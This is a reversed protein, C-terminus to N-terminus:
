VCVFCVYVSCVVDCMVVCYRVCVAAVCRVAFLLCRFVCLCVFCVFSVAGCSADYVSCVFVYRCVFHARMNFCFLCWSDSAFWVCEVVCTCVCCIVCVFRLDYLVVSLRLCVVRFRKAFLCM